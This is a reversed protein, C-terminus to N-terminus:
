RRGKTWGYERIIRVKFLISTTNIFDVGAIICMKIAKYMILEWPVSNLGGGIDSIMCTAPPVSLGAKLSSCFTFDKVDWTVHHRKMFARPPFYIMLCHIRSGWGWRFFWLISASCYRNISQNDTLKKRNLFLVLIVVGLVGNEVRSWWMLLLSGDSICKSAAIFCTVFLFFVRGERDSCIPRYEHM